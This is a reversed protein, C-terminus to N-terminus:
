NSTQEKNLRIEKNEPHPRQQPGQQPQRKFRQSTARDNSIKCVISFNCFLLIQQLAIETVISGQRHRKQNQNEKFTEKLIM